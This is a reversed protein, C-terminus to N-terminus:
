RSSTLILQIQELYIREILQKRYQEFVRKRGNEGMATREALTMELMTQMSSALSDSNQPICLLGNSGNIVVDRCGAVDSAIVPKEMACAELLSLPLGERYSPLVLCDTQMIFPRVDNTSGAYSLLGQQEWQKVQELSIASPNNAHHFGLLTSKFCYGKNKLQLAAQAFEYIGKEKILRGILLFEFPADSILKKETPQFFDLDIGEGPLIFTSDRAVMKEQVFLQQDEQNLFWTSRAKPLSWRYLFTAISRLLPRQIFAFGLGTVVAISPINLCDAALTGYVNPKITYHFILSPRHISYLRKLEMLFALDHVISMGAAVLKKLPIFDIGLENRLQESYADEPALVTVAYGNNQLTRITSLRFKVVSWSSNCVLFIKHDIADPMPPHLGVGFIKGLLSKAEYKQREQILVM